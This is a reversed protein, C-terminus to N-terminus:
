LAAAERRAGGRRRDPARLRGTPRGLRAQPAGADPEGRDTRGGRDHRVDRGRPYRHGGRVPAVDGGAVPRVGVPRVQDRGPVSEGARLTSLHSIMAPVANIWTVQHREMLGWFDTRHFRSDVVLGSGAWLAALVGVVQANIHFLPLPSFGIDGAEFGHETAVARAGDLLQREHLQILKPTGTSGSSFLLAGGSGGAPPLQPRGGDAVVPPRAVLTAGSTGYWPVGGVPSGLGAALEPRDSVVVAPQLRDLLSGVAAAPAAPDIPAAWRGAAIIAVYARSFELPDAICLAVREGRGVGSTALWGEWWAAADDLEAFSIRRQSRADRLFTGGGGSEARSRVVHALDGAVAVDVLDSAVAVELPTPLLTTM